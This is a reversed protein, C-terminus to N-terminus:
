LNPEKGESIIENQLEKVRNPDITRKPIVIFEALKVIKTEITQSTELAITWVAKFKIAVNIHMLYKAFILNGSSQFTDNDAQQM